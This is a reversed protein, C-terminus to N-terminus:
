LTLSLSIPSPPVFSFSLSLSLLMSLFFYLSLSLCLAARPPGLVSQSTGPREPSGQSTGPREPVNPLRGSAEQSRGSLNPFTGFAEPIGGVLRQSGALLEQSAGLLRQSAWVLEQFGGLLKQCYAEPLLVLLKQAGGSQKQLAGVLRHSAGLLVLAGQAEWPLGPIFKMPAVRPGKQAAPAGLIQGAGFIKWRLRLGEWTTAGGGMPLGPFGQSSM